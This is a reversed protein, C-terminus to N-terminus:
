TPPKQAWVCHIPVWAHMSPDSLAHRVSNILEDIEAREMGYEVLPRAAVAMTFNMLVERLYGGITRQRPDAPWDGIPMHFVRREVNQYGHRQLEGPLRDVYDPEFGYVKRFVESYLTLLKPIACGEPVTGDDSGM